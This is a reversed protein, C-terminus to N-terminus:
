LNSQVRYQMERSLKAVTDFKDKTYSQRHFKVNIPEGIKIVAKRKGKTRPRDISFVERELRDITDIFREPIPNEAVYGDYIADFNLLSFTIKAIKEKLEPSINNSKYGSDDITARVKYTRERIPLNTNNEIQLWQECQQILHQKLNTIRSNCNNCSHQKEIKYKNELDTLIREGVKQLRLCLDDTNPQIQLALELKRLSKAIAGYMEQTYRYKFSVPVLYFDPANGTKKELLSSAKFALEIAGPRFPMVTDNQYSCGGEPFIVLKCAPQQLLKLTQVISSRDGMGRRISYAGVSQLLDGLKGKFAEHAVVYHFLQGLRASLLFIVIGDDLNSHNPMYIVRSDAIKKAKEIDKAAIDIRLQYMWYSVLPFVSQILRTQLPNLRPPFFQPASNIRDSM